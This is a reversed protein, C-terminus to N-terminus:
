QAPAPWVELSLGPIDRFDDGNITVLTLDHAIATAAILRDIIRRRSFGRVAVIRAYITAVAGGIDLVTLTSLVEAWRAQRLAARAPDAHAGAELEVRTLVSIYPPPALRGIRLRIERNGDRLYIAVNSDLLVGM